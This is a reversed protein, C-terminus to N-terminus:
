AIVDRMETKLMVLGVVAADSFPAQDVLGFALQVRRQERVFVDVGPISLIAPGSAESCGVILLGHLGVQEPNVFTQRFVQAVNQSRAAAQPTGILETFVEGSDGGIEVM